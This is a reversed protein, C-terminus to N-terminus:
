RASVRDDDKERGKVAPTTRSRLRALRCWCHTFGKSNGVCYYLGDLTKSALEDVEVREARPAADVRCGRERIEQKPCAGSGTYQLSCDM